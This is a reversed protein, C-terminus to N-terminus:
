SGSMFKQDCNFHLHNKSLLENTILCAKMLDHLEVADDPSIPHKYRQVIADFAAKCVTILFLERDEASSLINRKKDLMSRAISLLPLGTQNQVPFLQSYILDRIKEAQPNIHQPKINKFCFQCIQEVEAPNLLVEGEMSIIDFLLEKLADETFEYGLSKIWNILDDEQYLTLQAYTAVKLVVVLVVRKINDRKEEIPVGFSEAYRQGETHTLWDATTM